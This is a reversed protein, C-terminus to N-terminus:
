KPEFKTADIAIGAEILGFIDFHKSLLYRFAEPKDGHPGGPFLSLGSGGGFSEISVHINGSEHPKISVTVDAPIQNKCYLQAYEIAEERKMDPLPRLALLVQDFMTAATIGGMKFHVVGSSYVEVLRFIKHLSKDYVYGGLYLHLYDKINM